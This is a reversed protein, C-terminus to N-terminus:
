AHELRGDYLLIVAHNDSYLANQYIPDGDPPWEKVRKGELAANNGLREFIPIMPLLENFIRALETVKVQQVKRDLGAGAEGLLKQIDVKGFATTNQTLEFAMGRGLHTAAVPINMNIFDQQLSFYPHPDGISWQQIALDFDGKPILPDVEPSVTPKEDIAIGFDVLQEKVDVAAASWDLFDSPYLLEFRAPRGDPTNWRSGSKQWGAERLLQAAKDPNHPYRQLKGLDAETLWDRVDVDFFGAMYQPARASEGLSVKAAHARDIAYALAQRAKVDKFMPVRDLSFVVAPGYYTLPKLVRFGEQEFKRQTSLPFGHTAFDVTKNLVLPTIDATEGKYIVITDFKVDKARIGNAQKRLVLRKTDYAHFDYRFPGSTIVESPDDKPDKPRWSQFEDSLKGGDPDDMSGGSEFLEKAQQAWDGYLADPFINARVIFREIVNAPNKLKFTVQHRGTVRISEIFNWEQQRMIWRCWFTSEVDRATIPDGTNWTLKEHVNYVFDNQSIDFSECVLYLWKKDAWYWMGGPAMILDFYAGLDVRNQVDTFLNFHGGDAPLLYPWGGHFEFGDGSASTESRKPAAEPRNCAALGSAGVTGVTGLGLIELVRRRSLKRDLVERPGSTSTM